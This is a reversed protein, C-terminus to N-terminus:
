HYIGLLCRTVRFGILACSMPQAVCYLMGSLIQQDEEGEERADVEATDAAIIDVLEAVLSDVVELESIQRKRISSASATTTNGFSQNKSQKTQGVDAGTGAEAVAEVSGPSSESLKDDKSRPLPPRPSPPRKKQNRLLVGLPRETLARGSM